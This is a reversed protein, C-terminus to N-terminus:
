VKFVVRDLEVGLADTATLHEKVFELVELTLDLRTTM